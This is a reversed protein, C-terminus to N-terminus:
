LMTLWIGLMCIATGLLLGKTMREKLVFYALPVVFLPSTSSLIAVNGATTLKVASTFLLASFGIFVGSVVLATVDRHQIRYYRVDGRATALLLLVVGNFPIRLATAPLPEASEMAKNLGLLSVTWLLAAVVSLVLATTPRRRAEDASAQGDRRPRRATAILSVGGIVLLGGAPTYWSMPEPAILASAAVSALIYIGTTIPFVRSMDDLSIARVFGLDGVVVVVGAGLLIAIDWAPIEAIGHLEGLATAVAVIVAAAFITRFASIYLASLRSTPGKVLVTGLAWFAACGLAALEGLM